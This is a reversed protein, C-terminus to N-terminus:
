CGCYYPAALVACLFMLPLTLALVIYYIINKLYIM